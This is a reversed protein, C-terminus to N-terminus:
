LSDVFKKVEEQNQIYYIPDVLSYESRYNETSFTMDEYYVLRMPRLKRLISFYKNHYERYQEFMEANIYVSNPELNVTNKYFNDQMWALVHSVFTSLVDRRKILFVQANDNIWDFIEDNMAYPTINFIVNDMGRLQNLKYDIDLEAADALTGRVIIPKGNETQLAWKKDFFERLYLHDSFEDKALTEAYANTGSRGKGFVVINNKETM